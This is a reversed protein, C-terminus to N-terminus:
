VLEASGMLMTWDNRVFDVKKGGHSVSLTWYVRPYDPAPADCFRGWMTGIGRADFLYECECTEYISRDSMPFQQPDHPESTGTTGVRVIGSSGASAIQSADGGGALNRRGYVSCSGDATFTFFGTAALPEGTLGALPGPVNAGLAAAVTGTALFAYKGDLTIATTSTSDNNNPGGQGMSITPMAAALLVSFM